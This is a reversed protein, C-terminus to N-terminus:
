RFTNFYINSTKCGPQFVIHFLNPKSKSEELFARYQKEEDVSLTGFKIKDYPVNCALADFRRALQVQSLEASVFLISKGLCWANYAINLLFLSKGSKLWGALVWIEGPQMGGSVRDLTPLGTHVFNVNKLVDQSDAYRKLRLAASTNLTEELKQTDLSDVQVVGERLIGIAKKWVGDEM